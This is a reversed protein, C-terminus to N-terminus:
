VASSPLPECDLSLDQPEPKVRVTVPPPSAKLIHSRSPVSAPPIISSLFDETEDVTSIPDSFRTALSHFMSRDQRSGDYGGVDKRELPTESRLLAAAVEALLVM